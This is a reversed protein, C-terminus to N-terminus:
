RGVEFLLLSYIVANYFNGDWFHHDRLTADKKFGLGELLKLAGTNFAATQGYVKNLGRYHFLYRYLLELAESGYGNRQEDPDILLGLEASRNLTNLNFFSVRGVLTNDKRRVVAFKQKNPDHEQKEYLKAAEEATEFQHPWCTMSQPDLQLMWHYGAEIDSPKAPRLYVKKGILAPRTTLEAKDAM